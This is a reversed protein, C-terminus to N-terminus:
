RDYYIIDVLLITWWPNYLFNILFLLRKLQNLKHTPKFDTTDKRALDLANCQYVNYLTSPTHQGCSM